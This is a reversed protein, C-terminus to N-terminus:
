PKSNPTEHKEHVTMKGQMRTTEWQAGATSFYVTQGENTDHTKWLKTGDPATRVLVAETKMRNQENAQQQMRARDAESCGSVVLMAAILLYVRVGLLSPSALETSNPDHEVKNM